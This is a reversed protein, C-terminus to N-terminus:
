RGHAGKKPVKKPSAFFTCFSFYYVPSFTLIKFMERRKEQKKLFEM